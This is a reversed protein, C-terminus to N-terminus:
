EILVRDERKIGHLQDDYDRAYAYMDCILGPSLDRQDGIGIGAVLGYSTM